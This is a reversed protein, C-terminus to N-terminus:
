NPKVLDIGYTDVKIIDRMMNLQNFFRFTLQIILIINILAPNVGLGDNSM